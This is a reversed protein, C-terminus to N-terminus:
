VAHQSTFQELVRIARKLQADRKRRVQHSLGADIQLDLGASGKLRGVIRARQSECEACKRYLSPRPIRSSFISPPAIPATTGASWRNESPAPKSSPTPPTPRPADSASM